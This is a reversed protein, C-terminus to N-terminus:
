VERLRWTATRCLNRESELGRFDMGTRGSKHGICNESWWKRCHGVLRFLRTTRRGNFV